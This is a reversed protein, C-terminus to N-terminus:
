HQKGPPYPTPILDVHVGVDPTEEAAQSLVQGLAMMGVRAGMNERLQVYVAWLLDQMVHIFATNELGEKPMNEALFFTFQMVLENRQEDTMM